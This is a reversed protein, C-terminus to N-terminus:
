LLLRVRRLYTQTNVGYIKHPKKEGSHGYEAAIGINGSYNKQKLLVYKGSSALIDPHKKV